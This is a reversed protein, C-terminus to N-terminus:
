RKKFRIEVARFGEELHGAVEATYDDIDCEGITEDILVLEGNENRVIKAKWIEM